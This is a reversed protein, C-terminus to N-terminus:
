AWVEAIQLTQQSESANYKGEAPAEACSNPFESPPTASTSSLKCFATEAKAATSALLSSTSNMFLRSSPGAVGDLCSNDQVEFASVFKAPFEDLAPQLCVDAGSDGIAHRPAFKEAKRRFIAPQVVNILPHAIVFRPIQGGVNILRLDGLPRCM